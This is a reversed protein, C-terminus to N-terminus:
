EGHRKKWGPSKKYLPRPASRERANRRAEARLRKRVTEPIGSM